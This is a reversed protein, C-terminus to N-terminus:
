RASRVRSRIATTSVGDQHPLYRQMDDERRIGRSRSYSRQTDPPLITFFTLSPNPQNCTFHPFLTISFFSLHLNPTSHHPTRTITHRSSSFYSHYNIVFNFLDLIALLYLLQHSALLTTLILIAYVFISLM